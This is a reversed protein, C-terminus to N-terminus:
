NKFEEGIKFYPTYKDNSTNEFCNNYFDDFKLSLVEVDIMTNPNIYLIDNENGKNNIYIDWLTFLSM